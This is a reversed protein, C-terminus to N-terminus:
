EAIKYVLKEGRVKGEKQMELGEAIADLGGLERSVNPKIKGSEIYAPLLGLYKEWFQRDVPRRGGWNDYGLGTFDYAHGFATYVVTSEVKVRSSLEVPLESSKRVGVCLVHGGRTSSVAQAVARTTAIDSICDLAHQLNDQTLNRVQEPWTADTYDIVVDAGHSKLLDHNQKSGTAVVRLGSLKALQIAYLGVSSSGGNILVPFPSQAPSTPEPLRLRQFMAQLATAIALSLTSADRLSVADPVAWVLSSEVVLYEAYSGQLPEDIGGFVFGAVRQGERWSSGNPDAVTGAFDNGLIRGPPRYPLVKWDAPNQAAYHVRVLIYGEAPIPPPIERVATTGSEAIILAKM